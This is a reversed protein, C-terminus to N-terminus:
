QSKRETPVKISAQVTALHPSGVPRRALMPNYCASVGPPDVLTPWYSLLLKMGPKVCHSAESRIKRHHTGAAGRGQGRSSAMRGTLPGALRPVCSASAASPLFVLPRVHVRGRENQLFSIRGSSWSQLVELALLLGDCAIAPTTCPVARLSDMPFVCVPTLCCRVSLRRFIPLDWASDRENRDILTCGSTEQRLCIQGAAVRSASSHWVTM